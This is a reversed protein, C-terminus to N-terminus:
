AIPGIAGTYTSCFASFITNTTMSSIRSIRWTYKASSCGFFRSRLPSKELYGIAYITTALWLVASLAVFYLSLPEARLLLDIGPVLEHRWELDDGRVVPPILLAVLGVKSVAGLLNLATREASLM